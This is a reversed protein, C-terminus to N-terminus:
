IRRKFYFQGGPITETTISQFISQAGVQWFLFFFRIQLKNHLYARQMLLNSNM